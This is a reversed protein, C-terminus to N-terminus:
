QFSLDLDSWLLLLPWLLVMPDCFAEWGEVLIRYSDDLDLLLMQNILQRSFFCKLYGRTSFKILKLFFMNIGCFELYKEKLKGKFCM